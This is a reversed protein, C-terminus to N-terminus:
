KAKSFSRSARIRGRMSAACIGALGFVFLTSTGPEVISLAVPSNFQVDDFGITFADQLVVKHFAGIGQLSVVTPSCGFCTDFGTVTGLLIGDADFASLTFSNGSGGLRDTAVSFFDTTAPIASNLPSVFTFTMAGSTTDINGSSSFPMIGNCGSAAHGPGYNFCLNFLGTDQFRIGLNSYSDGVRSALPVFDGELRDNSAALGSPLPSEFDILIAAAKVSQSSGFPGAFIGSFALLAAMLRDFKM